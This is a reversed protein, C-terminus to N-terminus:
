KLPEGEYIQWWLPSGFPVKNLLREHYGSGGNATIPKRYGRTGAAGPKIHRTVHPQTKEGPAEAQGAVSSAPALALTCALSAAAAKM